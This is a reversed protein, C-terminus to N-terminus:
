IVFWKTNGNSYFTKSAMTGAITTFDGGEVTNGASASITIANGTSRAGGTAEDKIVLLSGSCANANPLRVTVATSVNSTIGIIYDSQSATFATLGISRYKVRLGPVKFQSSALVYEVDNAAGVAGMSVSGTFIHTDDNSNGFQSSGNSNIEITNEIIYNSATIAQTVTLSGTIVAHGTFPFGAGAGVNTLNSGDGYFASASVHGSATMNGTLALQNNAYDFMLNASGSGVGIGNSDVAGTLFQISKNVGRAQAQSATPHVYAWGYNVVNAM